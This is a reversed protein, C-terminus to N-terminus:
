MCFIHPKSIFFSLLLLSYKLRQTTQVHLPTISHARPGSDGARRPSRPGGPPTCRVWVRGEAPVSGTLAVPQARLRGEAGRRLAAENRRGQVSSGLSERRWGAGPAPPGTPLARLVNQAPSVTDTASPSSVSSLQDRGM